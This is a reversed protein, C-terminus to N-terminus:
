DWGRPPTSGAARHKCLNGTAQRGGFPPMYVRMNTAPVYSLSSLLFLCSFSLPHLLIFSTMSSFIFYVWAM